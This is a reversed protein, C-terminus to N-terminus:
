LRTVEYLIPRSPSADAAIPAIGLNLLYQGDAIRDNVYILETVTNRSLPAAGATAGPAIGWFLRHNSLKGGDELRDISPMDVLVHQVKHQLLVQMAEHTFYPPMTTGYDRTRKEEANPTTRIILADLFASHAQKLAGQLAAATIVTDSTQPAPDYMEHMMDAATPTITILTAPLLSHQLMETIHVPAATIHGVCETHTGNTHPCLHYVACNCSGGRTVDGIFSDAQLPEARAPESGFVSLQPGEFRIAISLDHPTALNVSYRAGGLSVTMEM